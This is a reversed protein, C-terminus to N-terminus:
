LALATRRKRAPKCPIEGTPPKSAPRLQKILWTWDRGMGALILDLTEIHVDQREGALIKYVNSSNGQGTAANVTRQVDYKSVRRAELDNTLIAQVAKWKMRVM